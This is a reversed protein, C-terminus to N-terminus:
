QNVFGTRRRLNLNLARLIRRGQTQYDVDVLPRLNYRNVIGGGAGGGDGAGIAARGAVAAGGVAAGGFGALYNMITRLITPTRNAPERYPIVFLPDNEALQAVQELYPYVFQTFVTNLDNAGILSIGYAGDVVMTQIVNLLGGTADGGNTRFYNIVLRRIGDAAPNAGYQQVLDTMVRTMDNYYRGSNGLINDGFLLRPITEVTIAKMDVLVSLFPMVTGVYTGITRMTTLANSGGRVVSQFGQLGQRSLLQRVTEETYAEFQETSVFNRLEIIEEQNLSTPTDGDYNVFPTFNANEEDADEVQANENPANQNLTPTFDTQTGLMTSSNEASRSFRNHMTLATAIKNMLNRVEWQKRQEFINPFRPNASSEGDMMERKAYKSPPPLGLSPEYPYTPSIREKNSANYSAVYGKGYPGMQKVLGYTIM